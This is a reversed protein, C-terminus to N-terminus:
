RPAPLCCSTRIRRRAKWPKWYDRLRRRSRRNPPTIIAIETMVSEALPRIEDDRIFGLVCRTYEEANDVVLQHFQGKPIVMMDGPRLDHTIGNSLFRATGDIFLLIEDYEHFEGGEIYPKGKAYKCHIGASELYYEFQPKM